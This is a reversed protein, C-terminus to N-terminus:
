DVAGLVVAKSEGQSPTAEVKRSQQGCMSCKSCMEVSIMPIDAGDMETKIMPIEADEDDDRPVDKGCEIEDEEGEDKNTAEGKM